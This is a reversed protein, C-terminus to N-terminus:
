SLFPGYPQQCFGDSLLLWGGPEVYNALNAVARHFGTDDTIHFLVDFATVLFFKKGNFIDAAQLATLDALKFHHSPYRKQLTNVSVETIDIGTISFPIQEQWFPIYAGSGVGCDLITKGAPRIKNKRLGRLLSAFRLRYLWRNYTIGLGLYGVLNIDLADCSLRKEWYTHPDYPEM